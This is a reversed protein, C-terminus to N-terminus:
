KNVLEFVSNIRMNLRMLFHYNTHTHDIINYIVNEYTNKTHVM